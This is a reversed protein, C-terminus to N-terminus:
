PRGEPRRSLRTYLLAVTSVLLLAAGLLVVVVIVEAEPSPLRLWGPQYAVVLVWCLALLVATLVAATTWELWRLLHNTKNQNM